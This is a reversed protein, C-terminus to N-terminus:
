QYVKEPLDDRLCQGVACKRGNEDKYVCQGHERARTSPDKCYGNDFLLEIIELRTLLEKEYGALKKGKKLIMYIGLVCTGIIALLFFLENFLNLYNTEQSM